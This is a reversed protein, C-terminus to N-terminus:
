VTHLTFQTPLAYCKALRQLSRMTIILDDDDDGDDDGDDDNDNDNIM